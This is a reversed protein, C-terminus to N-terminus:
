GVVVFGNVEPNWVPAQVLHGFLRTFSAAGADTVPTDASCARCELLPASFAGRNLKAVKPVAASCRKCRWGEALEALHTKASVTQREFAAHAQVLAAAKTKLAASSADSSAAAEASARAARLVLELQMLLKERVDGRGEAATRTALATQTALDDLLKEFVESPDRGNAM